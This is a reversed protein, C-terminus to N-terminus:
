QKLDVLASLSEYENCSAIAADILEDLRSLDHGSTAEYVIITDSPNHDASTPIEGSACSVLWDDPWSRTIHLLISQM